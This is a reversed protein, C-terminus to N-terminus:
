GDLSSDDVVACGGGTLETGILTGEAGVSWIVEEGEDQFELSWALDLIAQKHLAPLHAYNSHPPYTKWLATHPIDLHRVVLLPVFSFPLLPPFILHALTLM